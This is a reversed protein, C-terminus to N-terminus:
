NGREVPGRLLYHTFKRFLSPRFSAKLEAAFAQEVHLADPFQFKVKLKTNLPIQRLPKLRSHTASAGFGINSVRAHLSLLALADQKCHAYAWRIAWSDIKDAM